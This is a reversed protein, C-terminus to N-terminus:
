PKKQGWGGVRSRFFIRNDVLLFIRAYYQLAICKYIIDRTNGIFQNCIIHYFFDKTISTQDMTM